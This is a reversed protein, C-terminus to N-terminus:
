TAAATKVRGSWRDVAVLVAGLVLFLAFVGACNRL